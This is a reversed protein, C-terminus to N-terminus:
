KFSALAKRADAAGDFNPDLKLAAELAERARTKDGSGLFALGLHYRYVPKQPVTTVADQLPAVAMAALGKKYYIWGLTDDVEPSQPMGAKATQALQLGVDLNRGGEAYLWALNNAAVPARPDLELVRQYRKEAEPNRNQLQLIVGIMTHAGVPKKQRKAIEELGAKAQDLKQQSLYVQALMAYAQLDAPAVQIARQLTQETKAMDGETASLRASLVLLPGSNPTRALHSEVRARADPLKKAWVDLTVLGRIAAFSNPDIQLTRDFERRAAAQDKKLMLVTGMQAHVSAMGPYQALLPKLEMEARPLEGRATLSQALALHADASNPQIQVAREAFQLAPETAGAALQLRSIQLQAATARPNLTLVENFAKIAQETDNQAAYITGLL